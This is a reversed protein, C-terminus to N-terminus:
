VAQSIFAPCPANNQWHALTEEDIDPAIPLFVTSGTGTLRPKADSPLSALYDYAIAIAPNQRAIAEFANYFPAHLQNLYDNQRALLTAHSLQPSDKKLLPHSFLGATSSHVSPCLLLYSQKPLEIPTLIEGIGEAIAHPHNLVFFPVDAGLGKAIHTLIDTPLNLGWLSNLALLTTGANSSGGGLGAGTPLRKDLHISIPFIPHNTQQAHAALAKGAKYILNDAVNDTLNDAGTLTLLPAHPTDNPAFTLVDHWDLRCFVSQLNHYGDGRKGTIHLFLNLKAYSKIHLATM